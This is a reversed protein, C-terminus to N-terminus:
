ITSEQRIDELQSQSDTMDDTVVYAKVPQQELQGGSLTFSGTKPAQITPTSIDGGGGSSANGMNESLINRVSAAGIVGASIANGLRIPYPLLADTGKAALADVIAQQTSYITQSVAIAKSIKKNKEFLAAGASFANAQMNRRADFVAKDLAIKDDAEQKKTAIADDAIKQNYENNKEIKKDWAEDEKAQKEEAQKQIRNLEEQDYIDQITKLTELRVKKNEIEGAAALENALDQERKLQARKEEDQEELLLLEDALKRLSKEDSLRQKRRDARRQAAKEDKKAQEEAKRMAVIQERVATKADVVDETWDELQAAAGEIADANKDYWEAYWDKDKYEEMLGNNKEVRAIAEDLLGAEKELFQQRKVLEKDAETEADLLAYEADMKSTINRASEILAQNHKLVADTHAKQAATQRKTSSESEDGSSIYSGLAGVLSVVGLVLAGIGTAMIAAKLAYLAITSAAITGTLIGQTIAWAGNALAVGKAWVVGLKTQILGLKEVAVRKATAAMLAAESMMRIGTAIAIASQVRVQIKELNENEIGMLGLAGQAVAFAGVIGEGMKLFAEAKQQPELGEMNKELVKMESGAKQLQGTLKEFEESGLPAGEITGRLKEIRGQLEKINKAPKKTDVVFQMDLKGKKAM